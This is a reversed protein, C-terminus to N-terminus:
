MNGSKPHGRGSDTEGAFNAVASSGLSHAASPMDGESYRSRSRGRSGTLHSENSSGNVLAGPHGDLASGVWSMSSSRLYPQQHHGEVLLSRRNFNSLRRFDRRDKDAQRREGRRYRPADLTAAPQRVMGFISKIPNSKLANEQGVIDAAQNVVYSIRERDYTRHFKENFNGIM